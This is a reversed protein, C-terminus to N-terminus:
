VPSGDPICAITKQADDDWRILGKADMHEFAEVAVLVSQQALTAMEALCTQSGFPTGFLMLSMIEQQEDNGEAMRWAKWPAVSWGYGGTMDQVMRVYETWEPHCANDRKIAETVTTYYSDM